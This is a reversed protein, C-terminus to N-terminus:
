SGEGSAWRLLPKVGVDLLRGVGDTNEIVFFMRYREDSKYSTPLSQLRANVMQPLGRMTPLQEPSLPYTHWTVQVVTGRPLRWSDLLTAETQGFRIPKSAAEADVESVSIYGVDAVGYEPVIVTSKPLSQQPVVALGLGPIIIQFMLTGSPDQPTPRSWKSVARDKGPGQHKESDQERVFAHRFLGSSHLSTKFISALSRIALYVEDNNSWVRWTSSMTEAESTGVAIRVAHDEAM